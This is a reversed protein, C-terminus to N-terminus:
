SSGKPQTTSKALRGGTKSNCPGCAPRINTRVYTGGCCQPVIKDVTVTDFTLLEGCRYCRCACEGNLDVDAAYTVLLYLKRRRRDETNGRVNTNTTGRRATTESM